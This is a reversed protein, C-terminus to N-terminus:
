AASTGTEVTFRGSTGAERRLGGRRAALVLWLLGVIVLAASELQAATLGLFVGENRRVFEVLLRELGALVLYFAFLVGPRYRDRPGGCGCRWSGWAGADRLDAHTPRTVGPPTPVAGHPYGM